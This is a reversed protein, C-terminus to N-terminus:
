AEAAAVLEDAFLSLRQTSRDLAVEWSRKDLILSLRTRARTVATYILEKTIHPADYGPLIFIAHEFESGQSAHVSLAFAEQVESMAGLPAAVVGDGRRFYCVKGGQLDMVGADGNNIDLDRHNRLCVVPLFRAVGSRLLMQHLRGNIATSGWPGKRFPSLVRQRSLLALADDVSKARTLSSFHGVIEEWLKRLARQDDLWVAELDPGAEAFFRPERIERRDVRIGEALRGIGSEPGFRHSEVLELLQHRWPLHGAQATKVLDLFFAGPEVSALQQPDGILVLRAENPLAEMLRTMHPLDIMSCEDVVVLGTAQIRAHHDYLFRHLTMARLPAYFLDTSNGPLEENLRAAAKGTPALVLPNLEPARQQISQLINLALWSKGTGPGGAIVLLGQEHLIRFAKRVSRDLQREECLKSWVRDTPLKHKALLAAALKQEQIAHRQFSLYRGQRFLFPRTLFDSTEDSAIPKLWEQWQVLSPWRGEEIGTPVAELDVSLHQSHWSQVVAEILLGLEDEKVMPKLLSRLGASIGSHNSSQREIM